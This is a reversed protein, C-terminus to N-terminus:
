GRALLRASLGTVSAPSLGTLRAVTSRAVPGHDLVANLVSRTGPARRPPAAPPAIDARRVPTPRRRVPVPPKKM